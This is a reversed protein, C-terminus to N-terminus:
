FPIGSEKLTPVEPMSPLRDDGTVALVKIQKSEYLPMVGLPPGIYLHNRGAVIEQMAEATGKYPIGTMKMVTLKELKKALLNQTSGVGLHGYNVRDPHEKTYDILQNFSQAPIANSVAVAYSYKAILSIGLLDSLKYKVSRYLLTNVADFNTCIFLNYASRRQSSMVTAASWAGRRPT